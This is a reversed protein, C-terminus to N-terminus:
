SSTRTLELLLAELSALTRREDRGAVAARAAARDVAGEGIRELWGEVASALAAADGPDAIVTGARPDGLAEAAGNFRTTVAPTGCALAELVALSCPDRWTPHVCLDAAAWLATAEARALVRVRGAPLGRRRALREWRRPHRPGALVLTWRRATLTGLADLLAPFGKLLPNGAALVLLPEAPAVGQSRRWEAGAAARLGPHFRELDVGNPVTVLRGSAAPYDRALEARVLESVCAVRRAGGRGLLTRELALFTRHRGVAAGPGRGRSRRRARLTEAHAGGHPWYLDTRELHRIGVTADCGAEEAARPLARALARERASRTLGRAAVAEFRGPAGPSAALGFARVDWGRGALHAALSALAREAGGRAPEWRDILFGVRPAM